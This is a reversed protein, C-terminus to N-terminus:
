LYLYTNDSGDKLTDKLNEYYLGGPTHRPFNRGTGFNAAELDTFFCAGGGYNRRLHM